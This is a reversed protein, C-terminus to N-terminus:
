AFPQKSFTKCIYVFIISKYVSVHFINTLVRIIM